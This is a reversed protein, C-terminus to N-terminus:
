PLTEYCFHFIIRKSEVTQLTTEQRKLNQMDRTQKKLIKDERKWMTQEKRLFTLHEVM